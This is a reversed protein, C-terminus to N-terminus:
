GGLQDDHKKKDHREVFFIILRIIGTIAAGAPVALWEM